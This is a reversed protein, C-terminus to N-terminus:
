QASPGTAAPRLQSFTLRELCFGLLRNDEAHNLARPRAANPLSLVIELAGGGVTMQPPVEFEVVCIDRIVWTGLAQGNISIGIQQTPLLTPIVFPHGMLRVVYAGGRPCPPLRLTAENANTWIFGPEPGAWGEALNAAGSAGVGFDLAFVEELTPSGPPAVTHPTLYREVDPPNEVVFLESTGSEREHQQEATLEEAFAVVGRDGVLKAIQLGTVSATGTEQLAWSVLDFLKQDEATVAFMADSFFRRVEHLSVISESTNHRLSRPVGWREKLWREYQRTTTVEVDHVIMLDIADEFSIADGGRGLFRCARNAPTIDPHLLASVVLDKLQQVSLDSPLQDHGLWALIEATDPDQGTPDQRARGIVYNAQSVMLEVPDRIISVIRDSPRSGARAVYGGLDMHGYVFIRDHFPAGRALGSLVALFDDDAIWDPSDLISPLPLQRRGLNMVLDTGACKPVHIFVDRSLEPYAGLFAAMVNRRFEPSLLAAKFAARPDFRLAPVAEDRDAPARGLVAQHIHAPTAGAFDVRALLEDLGAASDLLALLRFVERQTAPMRLPLATVWQPVDRPTGERSDPM